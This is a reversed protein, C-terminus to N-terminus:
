GPSEVLRVEARLMPGDGEPLMAEAVYRGAERGLQEPLRVTVVDIGPSLRLTQTERGGDPATFTIEVIVEASPPPSLKAWARVDETPEVEARAAGAEGTLPDVETIFRLQSLSTPADGAAPDDPAASSGPTPSTSALPEGVDDGGSPQEDAATPQDGEGAPATSADQQPDTSAAAPDDSDRALSVVALTVAVVVVAMGAVLAAAVGVSRMSDGDQDPPVWADTEDDTDDDTPTSTAPALAVDPPEIATVRYVEVPQMGLLEATEEVPQELDDVLAAAIDQRDVGFRDQLLEAAAGLAVSRDEHAVPQLAGAVRDAIGPSLFCRLLGRVADDLQGTRPQPPPTTTESM